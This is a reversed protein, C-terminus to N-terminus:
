TIGVTQNTTVVKTASGIIWTLFCFALNTVPHVCDELEKSESRNLWRGLITFTCGGREVFGSNGASNYSM